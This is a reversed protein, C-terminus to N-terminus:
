STEEEPPGVPRADSLNYVEVASGLASRIFGAKGDTYAARSDRHEAALKRKLAEYRAALGADGRLADRFALHQIWFASRHVVAHVHVAPRQGAPRTFYRREPLVAEYRPEYRYGYAELEPIAEEIVALSSAGVLVDIVPKAALRPVATSGIHEIEVTAREFCRAIERRLSAFDSSWRAKHPVLEVPGAATM